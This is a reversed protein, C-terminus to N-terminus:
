LQLSVFKKKTVTQWLYAVQPSQADRAYLRTAMYELSDRLAYLVFLVM